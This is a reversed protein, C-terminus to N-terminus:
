SLKKTRKIPKKHQKDVTKKSAKEATKGSEEQIKKKKQTNKVSKERLIGVAQGMAQFMRLFGQPTTIVRFGSSEKEEPSTITKFEIRFMGGLFYIRGTSDVFVERKTNEM